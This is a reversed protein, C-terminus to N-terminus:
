CLVLSDKDRMPVYEFVDGHGATMTLAAGTGYLTPGLISGEDIVKQLEPAYGGLDVCSTFGAYLTDHLARVNRAGAEAPSTMTLNQMDIPRNPSGGMFHAHCEWLGPMLIPVTQVNLKSYKSPVDDVDGVYTIKGNESIIAQNSAPNGRGPILLAAQIYTADAAPKEEENDSGVEDAASASQIGLSRLCRAAGEVSAQDDIRRDTQCTPWM